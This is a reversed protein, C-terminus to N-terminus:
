GSQKIKKVYLLDGYKDSEELLIQTNENIWKRIDDVFVEAPYIKTNYFWICTGVPFVDLTENKFLHTYFFSIKKQYTQYIVQGQYKNKIDYVKFIGEGNCDVFIVDTSKVEKEYLKKIYERANSRYYYYPIEVSIKMRKYNNMGWFGYIAFVFILIEVIINIVDKKTRFFDFSKFAIIFAFPVLWLIVRSATFPYLRFYGSIINLIIPLTLLYLLFREKVALYIVGLLFMVILPLFCFFGFVFKCFYKFSEFSKFVDCGEVWMSLNLMDGQLTKLIMLFFLALTLFIYPLSMCLLRKYDKKKIYEVLFYFCIPVIVFEAPLSLYGMLGLFIGFYIARLNTSIKDKCELFVYLILLAFFVDSSYQKFEQSYYILEMHYALFSLLVLISSRFKFVKKGVFFALIFSAVGSVYPFFRLATENLGFFMYTLKFICMVFPPCCQNEDLPLFLQLFNRYQLNTILSGEDGFFGPESFWVDTRYILVKLLLFLAALYFIIKGTKLINNKIKNELCFM